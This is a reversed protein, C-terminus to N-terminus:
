IKFEGKALSNLVARLLEQGKSLDELNILSVPSHLYRCPTSIVGAPVGEATLSIKGADTGAQTFRRFQYPIKNTEAVSILFDLVKKHAVFSADMLTLVPGKGLSTAHFHEEYEVVDAATTTELILALSPKIKYAAPGAGRLGIEEQVTFVGWVSIPLDEKLLEALIYCGVRDDLAKGSFANDGLHLPETDFAVYDGRKVLKEAEEKNTAGIDLFLEELPITKEREKEKQLHIAKAGIVGKVKESGILVTKSLLVQDDIGGLKYFKLLGNKEIDAVMLGVEDMHASLMLRINDSAGKKFVLLNGLIDVEISDVFPTLEEKIINRVESECGSVGVARSLKELFM